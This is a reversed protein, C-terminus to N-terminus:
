NERMVEDDYEVEFRLKHKAEEQALALFTNKLRESPATQSLDTYMRFAAKEKKMALVLANQYDLEENPDVDVVYESIKLDAVKNEVPMLEKGEKVAILKVKHGKEEGAFQEFLEKIEPRDLKAALGMYFDYAGEEEKIAFDLIEDVSSFRQM